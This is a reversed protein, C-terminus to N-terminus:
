DVIKSYSKTSFEFIDINESTQTDIVDQLKAQAEEISDAEVFITGNAVIDFAYKM